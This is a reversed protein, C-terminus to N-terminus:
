QRKCPRICVSERLSDSSGGELVLSILFAISRGHSNLREPVSEFSRSPCIELVVVRFDGLQDLRVHELILLALDNSVPQDKETHKVARSVGLVLTFGQVANKLFATNVLLGEDAGYVLVNRRSYVLKDLKASHIQDRQHLLNFLRM